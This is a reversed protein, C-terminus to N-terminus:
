DLQCGKLKLYDIRFLLFMSKLRKAQILFDFPEFNMGFSLGLPSCQSFFFRCTNLAKFNPAFVHALPLFVCALNSALNSNTAELPFFM